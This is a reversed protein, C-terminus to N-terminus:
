PAAARLAAKYNAKADKKLPCWEGTARRSVYRYLSRGDCFVTCHEERPVDIGLWEAFTLSSDAHLYDGYRSM